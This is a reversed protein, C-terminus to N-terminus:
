SVPYHSVVNLLLSLFIELLDAVIIIVSAIPQSPPGLGRKVEIRNEVVEEEQEEVCQGLAWTALVSSASGLMCYM